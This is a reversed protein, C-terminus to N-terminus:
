SEQENQTHVLRDVLKSMFIKPFLLDFIYEVCISEQLIWFVPFNKYIIIITPSVSPAQFKQMEAEARNNMAANSEASAM